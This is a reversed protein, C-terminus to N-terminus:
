SKQVALYNKASHVWNQCNTKAAYNDLSEVTIKYVVCLLLFVLGTCGWKEIEELIIFSFCLFEIDMFTQYPWIFSSIYFPSIFPVALPCENNYSIFGGPSSLQTMISLKEHM